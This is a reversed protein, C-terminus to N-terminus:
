PMLEALKKLLEDGRLDKAIIKGDRGILVSHPISNVGYLKGGECGWGKLDSIHHWTLNDDKVAKLWNKRNQDMSVGLIDFGKDKYMQYAKVVNPNEKRCPSCWSAWFDILVYKGMLSSLAFMNGNTDALEIEVAPQGIDVKRLVVVREKLKKVYYSAAIANDFNTTISDLAALNIYYILQTIVMYPAVVSKNYKIAYNKLFLLQRDFVNNSISDYLEMTKSDNKAQAESYKTNCEEQLGAFVKMERMVKEYEYQTRSGTIRVNEVSDANGLVQIDSNEIFFTATKDKGEFELHAIDPIDVKGKLLFDGNKSLVSDITNSVGFQNNAKIRVWGNKLGNIKGYIRFLNGTGYQANAVFVIVLFLVFLSIKKM